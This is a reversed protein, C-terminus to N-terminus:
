DLEELCKDKYHYFKLEESSDIYAHICYPSLEFCELITQFDNLFVKYEKESLEIHIFFEIFSKHSKLFLPLNFQNFKELYKQNFIVKWEDYSKCDGCNIYLKYMFLVEYSLNLLNDDLFQVYKDLTLIDLESLDGSAVGLKIFDSKSYSLLGDMNLKINKLNLDCLSLLYNKDMEWYCNSNQFLYMFKNNYNSLDIMFKIEPIIIIDERDLSLRNGIIYWEKNDTYLIPDVFYNLLGIDIYLKYLFKEKKITNCLFSVPENYQYDVFVEIRYIGMKYYEDNDTFEIIFEDKTSDLLLNKVYVESHLYQEEIEYFISQLEIM